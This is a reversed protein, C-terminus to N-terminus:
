LKKIGLQMYDKLTRGVILFWYNSPNPPNQRIYSRLSGVICGDPPTIQSGWNVGGGWVM